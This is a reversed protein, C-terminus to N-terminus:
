AYMLKHCLADWLLKLIHKGNYVYNDFVSGINGYWLNPVSVGQVPGSKGMHESKKEFVIQNAQVSGPKLIGRTDVFKACGSIDITLSFKAM